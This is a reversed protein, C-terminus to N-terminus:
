SDDGHICPGRTYTGSRRLVVQHPRCNNRWREYYGCNPLNSIDTGDPFDIEICHCTDLTIARTFVVGMTNGDIYLPINARLMENTATFDIEDPVWTVSKESAMLGSPIILELRSDFPLCSLVRYKLESRGNPYLKVVKGILDGTIGNRKRVEMMETLSQPWKEKRQWERVEQEDRQQRERAALTRNHEEQALQIRRQNERNRQELELQHARNLEAAKWQQACQRKALWVPSVATRVDRDFKTVMADFAHPVLSPCNPHLQEASIRLKGTANRVASDCFPGDSAYGFAQELTLRNVTNVAVQSAERALQQGVRAIEDSMQQLFMAYRLNWQKRVADIMEARIQRELLAVKDPIETKLEPYFSACEQEFAAVTEDTLRSASPGEYPFTQISTRDIETKAALDKGALISQCAHEAFGACISVIRDNINVPGNPLIPSEHILRAVTTLVSDM